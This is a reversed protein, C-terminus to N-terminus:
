VIAMDSVFGAVSPQRLRFNKALFEHDGGVVPRDHISVVLGELCLCAFITPTQDDGRPPIPYEFFLAEGLPYVRGTADVASLQAMLDPDLDLKTLWAEMAKRDKGEIDIWYTGQGDRWEALTSEEELPRFTGDPEISRCKVQM